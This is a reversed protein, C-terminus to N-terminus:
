QDRIKGERHDGLETGKKFLISESDNLVCYRGLDYRSQLFFDFVECASLVLSSNEGRM